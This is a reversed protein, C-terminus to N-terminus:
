RAYLLRGIPQFTSFLWKARSTILAFIACVAGQLMPLQAVYDDSFLSPFFQGVANNMAHFIMIILVSRKAYYYVLNFISVTGVLFLLDAPHIIGTLFLPLHWGAIVVALILGAVLQTRQNALKPLVYGRWGPKEWAGGIGPVLLLMLFAPLMSPWNALKEPDPVPAGLLINLAAALGTILLPLGLAVIYWRVAVRWQVMQRLLEEVAPRGATLALVTVAALFPGFGVIVAPLMDLAYLPWMWWSFAYALLVFTAFPYRKVTTSLFTMM